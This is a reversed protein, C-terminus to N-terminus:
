STPKLGLCLTRNTRRYHAGYDTMFPLDGHWDCSSLGQKGGARQRRGPNRGATWAGDFLDLVADCIASSPAPAAPAVITTLENEVVATSSIAPTALAGSQNWSYACVSWLKVCSRTCRASAAPQRASQRVTSVGTAPARLRSARAFNSSGGPIL